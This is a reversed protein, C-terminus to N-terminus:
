VGLEKEVLERLSDGVEEVIEIDSGEVLIRLKNETGSYRTFIRGTGELRNTAAVLAGNWESIEELPKKERVNIAWQRSPMNDYRAWLDSLRCGKERIIKLAFLASFTGDSGNLWPLYIIHGALEGGLIAGIDHCKKTVAKDGNVVKEVKVGVNALYQETAYNSYETLVVTDEPLEGKEHLYEALLVVIRDGDWIRGEEDVLIIRDADGDLAVGMCGAKKAEEAVKEPFLAGYHANINDGDPEPDIRKVEVNFEELVAKSFDHGAGSAADLIITEGGLEETDLELKESALAVYDRVAAPNDDIELEVEPPDIDEDLENAFYNEEIDLEQEDSLKDGNGLFVKLGNDSAPNHSATIMVGGVIGEREEIIKQMAPTPLVGLDGSSGGQLKVGEAIEDSIWVGSKRTDRGILLRGNNFYKSIAKGLNRIANPRLPSEGVKKRIGDTEGFIRKEM